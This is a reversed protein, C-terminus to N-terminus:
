KVCSFLDIDINDNFFGKNRLSGLSFRIPAGMGVLNRVGASERFSVEICLRRFLRNPKHQTATECTGHLPLRADRIPGPPLLARAACCRGMPDAGGNEVTLSSV